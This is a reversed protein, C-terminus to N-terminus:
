ARMGDIFCGFGKRFVAMAEDRPLDRAIADANFGRIFCWISYSIAKEDLDSRVQGHQKGTEILRRIEQEWWALNADAFSDAAFIFQSLDQRSEYSLILTRTAVTQVHEWFEVDGRWPISLSERVRAISEQYLIQLVEDLNHFRNYFVRNTIQLDKMVDRVTMQAPNKRAAIRRASEIIERSIEDQIKEM